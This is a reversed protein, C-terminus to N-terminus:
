LLGIDFIQLFQDIFGFKSTWGIKLNRCGNELFLLIM